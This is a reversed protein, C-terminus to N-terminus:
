LGACLDPVSLRRMVMDLMAKSWGDNDGVWLVVVGQSAIILKEFFSSSNQVRDMIVFVLQSNNYTEIKNLYSKKLKRDKLTNIRNQWNIEM